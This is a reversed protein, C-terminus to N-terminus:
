SAASASKARANKVLKQLLGLGFFGTAAMLIITIWNTPTWTIVVSDNPM